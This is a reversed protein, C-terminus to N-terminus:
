IGLMAPHSANYMYEMVAERIEKEGAPNSAYGHNRLPDNLHERECQQVVKFHRPLNTNEDLVEARSLDVKKPSSDKLYELRASSKKLLENMGPVM